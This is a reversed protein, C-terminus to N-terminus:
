LCLETEMGPPESPLSDAQLAPGGPKIGPNSFLGRSFSISVWELIRARVSSGPLSCDMPDCLTLCWQAVLVWDMLYLRMPMEDGKELYSFPVCLPLFYQEWSWSSQILGLVVDMEEDVEWAERTQDSLLRRYTVEKEKMNNWKASSHTERAPFTSCFSFISIQWFFFVNHLLMYTVYVCARMCM